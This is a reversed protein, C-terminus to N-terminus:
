NRHNEENKETRELELQTPKPRNIQKLPLSNENIKQKKNEGKMSFSERNFNLNKTQKQSLTEGQDFGVQFKNHIYILTAELESWIYICITPKFM